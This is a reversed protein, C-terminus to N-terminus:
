SKKGKKKAPKKELDRLADLANAPPTFDDEPDDDDGVKAPPDVDVPAFDRVVFRKWYRRTEIVTGEDLPDDLTVDVWAEGESFGLGAVTGGIPSIDEEGAHVLVRDGEVLFDRAHSAAAAEDIAVDEPDDAFIAEGMALAAETGLTRLSAAIDLLAGATIKAIAERRLSESSMAGVSRLEAAAADIDIVGDNDMNQM